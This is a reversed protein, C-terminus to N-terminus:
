PSPLPMWSSVSRLGTSGPSGGRYLFPVISSGRSFVVASTKLFFLFMAAVKGAAAAGHMGALLPHVTIILTMFQARAPVAPCAKVVVSGCLIALWTREQASSLRVCNANKRNPQIQKM